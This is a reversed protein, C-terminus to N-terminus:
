RPLTEFLQDLRRNLDGLSAQLVKEREDLTGRSQQLEHALNLAVLVAVKDIGLMRNGGRAERMRADLMRAAALLGEREEDSCGVTFERDLIRITVAESM